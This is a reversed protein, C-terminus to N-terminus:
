NITTVGNYFNVDDITFASGGGSDNTVVFYRLNTIDAITIDGSSELVTYNSDCFEIKASTESIRTFQIYKTDLAPATTFRHDYQGGTPATANCGEFDYYNTTSTQRLGIGDRSTTQNETDIDQVMFILNNLKSTMTLKFRLVWSNPLTSGTLDVASNTTTGYSTLGASYTPEM